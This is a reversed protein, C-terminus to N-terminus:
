LGARGTGVDALLSRHVELQSRCISVAAGLVALLSIADYVKSPGRLFPRLVESVVCQWLGGGDRARLCSRREFVEEGEEIGIFWTSQVSLGSAYTGDVEYSQSSSPTDAASKASALIDDALQRQM